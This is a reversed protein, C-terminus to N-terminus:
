IDKLYAVHTVPNVAHIVMRPVGFYNKFTKGAATDLSAAIAAFDREVNTQVRRQQCPTCGKANKLNAHMAAIKAKITLFQPMLQYFKDDNIAKKIHVGGFLVPKIDSM